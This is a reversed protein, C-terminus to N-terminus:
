RKVFQEDEEAHIIERYEANMVKDNFDYEAKNRVIIVGNEETQALIIGHTRSKMRNRIKNNDDKDNHNYEGTNGSVIAEDIEEQIRIGREM